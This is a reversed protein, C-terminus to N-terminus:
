IFVVYNLSSTEWKLEQVQTSYEQFKMELIITKSYDTHYLSYDYDLLEFLTNSTQTGVAKAM